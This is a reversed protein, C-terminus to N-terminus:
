NASRGPKADMDRRSDVYEPDLKNGPDSDQEDWLVMQTEYELTAADAMQAAIAAIRQVGVESMYAANERSSRPILQAAIPLSAILAKSFLQRKTM